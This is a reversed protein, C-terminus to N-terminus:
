RKVRIKGSEDIYTELMEGDPGSSPVLDQLLRSQVESFQERLKKIRDRAGNPAAASLALGKVGSAGIISTEVSDVDQQTLVGTHGIGRAILPIGGKLAANLQIAATLKNAKPNLYAELASNIGDLAVEAGIQDRLKNMVPTALAKGNKSAVYEFIRMRSRYPIRNIDGGRLVDEGAAVEEQSFQGPKTPTGDGTRQEPNERASKRNKGLENSANARAYDAATQAATRLTNLRVDAADKASLKRGSGIDAGEVMAPPMNPRTRLDYDVASEQGHAPMAAGTGVQFASMMRMGPPMGSPNGYVDIADKAAVDKAQETPLQRYEPLTVGLNLSKVIEWARPDDPNQLLSAIYRSNMDQQGLSREHEMRQRALAEAKQQQERRDAKEAMESLIQEVASGRQGYTGRGYQTPM